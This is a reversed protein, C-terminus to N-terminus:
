FKFYLSNKLMLGSLSSRLEETTGFDTLQLQTRLGISRSSYLQLQYDLGVLPYFSSVSIFSQEEFENFYELDTGFSNYGFGMFAQFHNRRSRIFEYGLRLDLQFFGELDSNVLEGQNDFDLYSRQESFAFDVSVGFTVPQFNHEWFINLGHMAGLEDALSGTLWFYSYGFGFGRSGSSYVKKELAKRLTDTDELYYLDKHLFRNYAKDLSKAALLNLVAKEYNPWERKELLNSAEKKSWAIHRQLHAPLYNNRHLYDIYIRWYDIPVTTDLKGEVKLDYLLRSRISFETPECYSEWLNILSDSIGEQLGNQELNLVVAKETDECLTSVSQFLDSYDRNQAHLLTGPILLCLLYFRKM